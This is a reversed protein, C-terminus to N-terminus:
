RRKLVDMRGRGPHGGAPPRVCGLIYLSPDGGSPQRVYTNPMERRYGTQKALTVGWAGRGRDHVFQTAQPHAPDLGDVTVVVRAHDRSPSLAPFPQPFPQPDAYPRAM